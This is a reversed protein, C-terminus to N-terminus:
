VEQKYHKVFRQLEAETLDLGKTGDWDLIGLSDDIRWQTEPDLLFYDHPRGFSAEFMEKQTM